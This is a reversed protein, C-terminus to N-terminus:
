GDLQTGPTRGEYKRGDPYEFVGEGNMQQKAWHGRYICGDTWVEHGLLM